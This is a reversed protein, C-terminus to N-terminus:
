VELIRRAIGYFRYVVYAMALASLLLASFAWAQQIPTMIGATFFAYSQIINYVVIGIPAIIMAMWFSRQGTLVEFRKAILGILIFAGWLLFGAILSVYNTADTLFRYMGVSLSAPSQSNPSPKAPRWDQNTDSDLGQPNRILASGVAPAKTATEKWNLIPTKAPEAGWHVDDIVNGYVGERLIVADSQGNWVSPIKIVRFGRPPVSGDLAAVDNTATSLKWGEISIPEDTNNYLEVWAGAAPDKPTVAIENIVLPHGLDSRIGVGAFALLLPLVFALILALPILLDASRLRELSPITFPIAHIKRQM